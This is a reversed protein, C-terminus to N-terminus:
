IYEFLVNGQPTLIEYDEGISNPINELCKNLNVNNRYIDSPRTKKPRRHIIKQIAKRQPHHAYLRWNYTLINRINLINYINNNNNINYKIYFSNVFIINFHIAISIVIFFKM